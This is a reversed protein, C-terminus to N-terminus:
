AEAGSAIKGVMKVFEAGTNTLPFPSSPVSVGLFKALPEWGQKVDYVLLREKPVINLVEDNHEKFHKIVAEKNHLDNGFEKDLLSSNFKLIPLRKRLVSSFPLQIMMKLIRGASPKSAWFITKICSNYWSEPDRTTHVVKADPYKTLLQKYYRAVPYDVASQYGQFLTDWDVQQGQEAKEFYPLGNPNNFLERMHYCKGFGLEELAVKLSHTGTRGLGTGIVKIAM